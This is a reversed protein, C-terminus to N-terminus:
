DCVNIDEHKPGYIEDSLDLVNSLKRSLRLECYVVFDQSNKLYFLECRSYPFKIYNSQNVSKYLACVFLLQKNPSFFGFNCLLLLFCNTSIQGVAGCERVYDRKMFPIFSRANTHESSSSSSKTRRMYSKKEHSVSIVHEFDKVYRNEAYRKM